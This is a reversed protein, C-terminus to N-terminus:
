RPDAPAMANGLNKSVDVRACPPVGVVKQAVSRRSRRTPPRSAGPATRPDREAPDPSYPLAAEDGLLDWGRHVDATMAPDARGLEDANRHRTWGPRQGPM